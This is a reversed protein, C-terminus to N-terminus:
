GIPTSRRSRSSCSARSSRRVSCSASTARSSSATSRRSSAHRAVAERRGARTAVRGGAGAGARRQCQRARAQGACRPLPRRAARTRLALATTRRSTATTSRPSCRGRRVIFGARVPAERLFGDFPAVAARQVEGEVVASASVRYDGDLFFIGLLLLAALALGVRLGPRRPDKLHRWTDRLQDVLRGAFWRHLEIRSELLPGLLTGVAEFGRVEDASFPSSREFTLVGVGIGRSVLVVSCVARTAAFDRHAIAM